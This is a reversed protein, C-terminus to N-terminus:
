KNDDFEGSIKPAADVSKINEFLEWWRAKSYTAISDKPVYLCVIDWKIGAFPFEKIEPPEPRQVIVAKLGTCGRFADKGIFTVSDPIMVWTMHRRGDFKNDKISTEGDPIAEGDEGFLEYNLATEDVKKQIICWLNYLYYFPFFFMLTIATSRRDDLLFRVAGLFNWILLTCIIGMIVRYSTDYEGPDDFWQAIFQWVTAILAAIFFTCTHFSAFAKRETLNRVKPLFGNGMVLVWTVAITAPIGIIFTKLFDNFSNYELYPRM